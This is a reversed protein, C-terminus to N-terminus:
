SAAQVAPCDGEWILRYVSMNPGDLSRSAPGQTNFIECLRPDEPNRGPIQDPFAMLYRADRAQMLAWLADADTVIPVVDPSVLGAIDLMPRPTFYGVAGIDHIALLEEESLNDRIWFASAVMEENIVAVDRQYAQAGLFLAFALYVLILSFLWTQSLVRAMVQSLAKGRPLRALLILTGIGGALVFFPLAPIVYRGHQYAAPLRLAYLFLLSIPWLLPLAFFLSRRWDYRPLLNLAYVFIGPILLIQGGTMIALFLSSLRQLLPLQLLVAHQEFKAAATNPLLGGTLQLNLLLYPAALIAFGLAAATGWELVRQLSGHPRTILMLAAVIGGLAIGEPRALMALATVAGFLFGRRWLAARSTDADLERWALGMLMLTLAAFLMTEMGSAAAWVLHWCAVILLGLGWSLWAPQPQIIRVMRVATFAALMLALAGLAHTWIAYPINLAYGLSLLVTYLPSTSAASPQGPLFAWEGYQAVNRGYTQHIWSDDLPFGSGARAVYWAVLLGALLALVLDQRTLSFPM